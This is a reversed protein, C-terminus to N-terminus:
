FRSVQRVPGRSYLYWTINTSTKPTIQVRPLATPYYHPINARPRPLVSRACRPRYLLSRPGINGLVARAQQTLLYNIIHREPWAQKRFFVWSIVTEVSVTRITFDRGLFFWDSRESKGEWIIIKRIERVQMSDFTTMTYKAQARKQLWQGVSCIQAFKAIRVALVPVRYKIKPWFRKLVHRLLFCNIRPYSVFISLTSVLTLLDVQPFFHQLLSLTEVCPCSLFISM